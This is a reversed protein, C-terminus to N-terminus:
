VASSPEGKVLASLATHLMTRHEPPTTEQMSIKLAAGFVDRKRHLAHLMSLPLDTVALRLMVAQNRARRSQANARFGSVLLKGEESAIQYTAGLLGAGVAIGVARAM